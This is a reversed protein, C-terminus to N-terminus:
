RQMFQVSAIVALTLHFPISRDGSQFCLSGRASFVGDGIEVSGPNQSKTRCILAFRARQEQLRHPTPANSCHGAKGSGATCWFPSRSPLAWRLRPDSTGTPWRQGDSKGRVNMVSCDGLAAWPPFPHPVLMDMEMTVSQQCIQPASRFSKVSLHTYDDGRVGGKFYNRSFQHKRRVFPESECLLM